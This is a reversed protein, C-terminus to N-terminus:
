EYSFSRLPGKFHKVINSVVIMTFILYVILFVTLSLCGNYLKVLFFSETLNVMDFNLFDFCHFEFFLEDLFLFLLFLGVLFFFSVKFKENSSISSIYMFIVLLGGIMVLMIVICFWSTLMVKGILFSIFFFYFMLLLGMSMPNIMFCSLSCSYVIFKM